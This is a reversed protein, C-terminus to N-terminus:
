DLYDRLASVEEPPLAEFVEQIWPRTAKEYQESVFEHLPIFPEFQEPLWHQWDHTVPRHAKRFYELLERELKPPLDYAELVAADILLLMRNLDDSQPRLITQDGVIDSYQRALLGARQPLVPPLPIHEVADIRFRNGPSHTAIFANAVPGNLVAAFAWLEEPSIDARPWLGLLQQSFALGTADATAAVRWPGRSRRVGNMIVKPRAWPRSKAHTLHSPELDLWRLRRASFADLDDPSHLGLKDTKSRQEQSAADDQPYTWRAGLHVRALSGLLRNDNLYDWVRDLNRIWLEGAPTERVVREVERLTTVEGTKLFRQRDRDAVEASRLSIIKGGAPQPDRAILLATDIESYEFIHDPLTVIEVSSYQAEIRKRQAAYRRELVFSRPLVFGLAIPKADLAADVVFEPKFQAAAAIPYKVRELQTFAEFPPNCVIINNQLMKDLLLRDEFLDTEAIHWGNHNPYDALILSLMAVECAFADREDGALHNIMFDHRQQPTWNLPLLERMHRLASTLFVAAGAFPEYIRLHGADHRHLGLRAVIYEAVQRPTSHTGLERRIEPTVFTNEYVFALDDSSINQCNIGGRLADWALRFAYAELSNPEVLLEPLSYYSAITDLITKIDHPNWREAIANRRDTLIKAAVLRFVGRFLRRGDLRNNRTEMSTAAALAEGLLRDLKAHIEGEIAPMLGVDVFDLQYSRDAMGISKARQIRQPSWDDLHASFLNTLQDQGVRAVKRSGSDSRVQWATIENDEIVFLLPAGLARYESVLQEVSHREPNNTIALAANRYSPPTQTFAALPATRDRPPSAFVDSFVYDSVIASYGIRAIEARLQQAANM